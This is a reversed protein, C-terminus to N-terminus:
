DNYVGGAIEESVYPATMEGVKQGDLVVIMSGIGQEVAEKIEKPLSEIGSFAAVASGFAGYAAGTKSGERSMRNVFEEVDAATAEDPLIWESAEQQQKFISDWYKISNGGLWAFVNADKSNADLNNKFDEVNEHSFTHEAQEKMRDWWQGITETGQFVTGLPGEHTFWDLLPGANASIFSAASPANASVWNAAGTLWNGSAAAGAGAGGGSETGPISINPNAKLWKLGNVLELVTTVGEALKLGAWVGIFAEIAGVVADKNDAIWQLGDRISNFIGVVDQMTKEPDIKALDEFLSEVAKGLSEMMAQGDESELYKNFQEVLGTLTKMVGEAAPALEGLFTLKVTELDSKLIQYQDDMKQLADVQEQPVVNWSANLKEYEERGAQFLPILENWGRGFLKQAANEKAYEDGLNMIADGIRWFMEEPDTDVINGLGLAELADASGGGELNAKMRKKAGVIADVSTDILNATKEIRQLTDQDIGYYASKTNLDDAWSGAGLVETKIIRGVRLAAQMVKEMGGTISTLANHVTDLSVNKGIGQLSQEMGSIAVDADDAAGGINDIATQTDIMAGKASLMQRYMDQYAKSSREVGNKTMQDLAQEAGAVVAKQQELKAKLLEAKETMYSESDGSAKFQKETLALQADLTKVAQKAQNMNQKFQAIGSVGMKVNVGNAM